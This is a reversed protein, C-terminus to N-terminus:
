NLVMAEKVVPPNGEVAVVLLRMDCGEYQPSQTMFLEAAFRMQRQKEATIM